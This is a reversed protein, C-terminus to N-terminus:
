SWSDNKDVRSGEDHTLTTGLRPLDNALCPEERTVSVRVGIHNM